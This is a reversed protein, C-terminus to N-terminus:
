GLGTAWDDVVLHNVVMAGSLTVRIRNAQAPLWLPHVIGANVNREPILPVALRQLGNVDITLVANPHLDGIRRGCVFFNRVSALGEVVFEASRDLVHGGHDASFRLGGTSIRCAGATNEQDLERAWHAEERQLMSEAIFRAATHPSAAFEAALDGELADAYAQPGAVLLGRWVESLARKIEGRWRGFLRRSNRLDQAAHAKRSLSVHHRIRSNSALYIAKGAARLKFCLDIDECGNVFAEDFGGVADFDAKRLLLCAGTVALAKAYPADPPAGLHHLQGAPTLVVGAHDVEGDAVRVQINGVAGANLEASHLCALMPELWGPEFLLDNNLLALLEGRALRAGANNNAAYGRNEASLVGQIQPDRLTKLWAATGDTSADDALIIEYNLGEPLSARLSALMERTEAFHNFLPVVFSVSSM